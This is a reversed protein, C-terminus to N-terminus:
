VSQSVYNSIELQVLFQESNWDDGTFIVCNEILQSIGPKYEGSHLTCYISM